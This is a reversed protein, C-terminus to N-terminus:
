VPNPIRKLSAAWRSGRQIENQDAVSGAAILGAVTRIPNPLRMQTPVLWGDGLQLARRLRASDEAPAIANLITIRTWVTSQEIEESARGFQRRVDAFRKARGPRLTATSGPILKVIDGSDPLWSSDSDAASSDDISSTM